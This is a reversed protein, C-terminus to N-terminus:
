WTAGPDYSSAYMGTQGFGTDRMNCQVVILLEGGHSHTGYKKCSPSSGAEVKLEVRTYNENEVQDDTCSSVMCTTVNACEQDTGIRCWPKWPPSIHNEGNVVLSANVFTTYGGLYATSKREGRWDVTGSNWNAGADHGNKWKRIQIVDVQTATIDYKFTGLVPDPELAHPLTTTRVGGWGINFYNHTIDEPNAIVYEDSPNAFSNNLNFPIPISM